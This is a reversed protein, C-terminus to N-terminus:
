LYLTGFIGFFFIDISITCIDIFITIDMRSLTLRLNVLLSWNIYGITITKIEGINTFNFGDSGM